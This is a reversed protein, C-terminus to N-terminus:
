QFCVVVVFVSQSDVNSLKGFEIGCITTTEEGFGMGVPRMNIGIVM